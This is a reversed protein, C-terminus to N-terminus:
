GPEGQTDHQQRAEEAATLPMGGNMGTRTTVGRWPHSRENLRNTSLLRVEGIRPTFLSICESLALGLAMLISLGIVSPRPM